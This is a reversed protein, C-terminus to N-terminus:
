LSSNKIYENILLDLEQSLKLIKEDVYTEYNLNILSDNLKNRLENIKQKLNTIEM